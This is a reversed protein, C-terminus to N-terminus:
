AAQRIRQQLEEKLRNLKGALSADVMMGEFHLTLGGLIEPNQQVALSVKKGTFRSLSAVLEAETKADLPAAVVMQAVIEGSEQRLRAAFGEVMEALLGLRQNRALLAIFQAVLPHAKAKTAIAQVAQEKVRRSQLPSQCLAKFAVSERLLNGLMEMDKAVAALLNQEKALLFLATVYRAAIQQTNQTKAM